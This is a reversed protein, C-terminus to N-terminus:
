GWTWWRRRRPPEADLNPYPLLEDCLISAPNDEVLMRAQRAGILDVCRDFAASITPPRGQDSHADSALLSVWGNRVLVEAARKTSSGFGGLLSGANVQLYCGRDLLTRVVDLDRHWARVREPHALVVKFGHSQLQFLAQHSFAEHELQATELLVYSSGALTLAGGDQLSKLLSPVLIVEQGLELELSIAESRLKESCEELCRRARETEKGVGTWHPTTIIKRIGDAEAIRAMRVTTDWDRPGDDLGPLLHCHTDIM